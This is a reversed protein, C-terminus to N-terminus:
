LLNCSLTNMPRASGSPVRVRHTNLRTQTLHEGFFGINVRGAQLQQPQPDPNPYSLQIIPRGMPVWFFLVDSEVSKKQGRWSVKVWFFSLSLSFIPLFYAQHRGRVRSPHPSPPRLITVRAKVRARRSDPDRWSARPNPPVQPRPCNISM